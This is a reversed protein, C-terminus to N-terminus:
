IRTRTAPTLERDRLAPNVTPRYVRFIGRNRLLYRLERGAKRSQPKELEKRPSVRGSLAAPPNTNCSFM